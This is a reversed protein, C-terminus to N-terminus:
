NLKLCTETGEYEPLQLDYKLELSKPVFRGGLYHIGNFFKACLKPSTLSILMSPKIFETQSESPTNGTEVNWGSPIDISVIPVNTKLMVNMIDKFSDRVPPKFSFGFLGDVILRYNSADSPCENLFEIDMLQCQQVLNTFLPKDTRKPYYIFPQFKMLSLHRACVLADGGNNGPGGIVLIKNNEEVKFEKAIAHACSLGALEM